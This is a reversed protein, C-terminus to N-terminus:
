PASPMQYHDPSPPGRLTQYPYQLSSLNPKLLHPNLPSDQPQKPATQAAAKPATQPATTPAMQPDLLDQNPEPLNQNPDQLTRTRDPLDMGSQCSRSGHRATSTQNTDPLIQPPDPLDM